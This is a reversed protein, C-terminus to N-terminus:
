RMIVKSSFINDDTLVKVVYAGANINDVYLTTETTEAVLRGSMDYLQIAKVDNSTVEIRNDKVVVQPEPTATASKVSALEGGYLAINDILLAECIKSRLRIAVYITSGAGAYEGLAVGRTKFEPSEAVFEEHTTYYWSDDGNSSVMISYTELFNANFSSVDWVLYSDKTPCYAPLVCWRDAKDVGDLWTTGALVYQGYLEHKQINFLGWGAENFEEGAGPNVTGRDESRFVLDGPLNGDEFDWLKAPKGMVRFQLTDTNNEYVNDDACTLEVVLTHIGEELNSLADKVGFNLIEQAKIATTKEDVVVDDIKVRVIAESDKIGINRVSFDVSKKSGVHVYEKPNTIGNVTLDVSESSAKEFSIDDVCLWNEDKNSFVHFGFFITQPKDFYIISISEEYSSRAFPAHEVVKNTMAEPTASNGYYVGLKEPHIDDGSYWFRLVYYGAEEIKIPELIAWDDANNNKDYNYALCFDGTHALNTYPDAYIDWDGEDENLNFLTIGETYENMEFGMFFPVTADAKHLVSAYCTDNPVNVDDAHTTWAAVNHVVRPTTLDAKTAFTYEMEDGMALTQNITETAVVNNNVAFSLDFSSIDVKGNNKVKVTVTEEGLNFGTVPSVIESVLLDVPNSTFQATVNCLYLRFGDPNSCARFGLYVPRNAQVDILYFHSTINDILTMEDSLRNKMFDVSPRTGYFVEMKEGFVSGRVSFNIALTGSQESVIAPSIIWDDASNTSHFEYYVHSPDGEENYKWTAGDENADLVTWANFDDETAFYNSYIVQACVSVICFCITLLFTCFRKMHNTTPENTLSNSLNLRNDKVACM